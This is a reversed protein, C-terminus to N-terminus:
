FQGIGCEHDPKAADRGRRPLPWPHEEDRRQKVGKVHMDLSLSAHYAIDFHEPLAQQVGDSPADLSEAARLHIEVELDPAVSGNSVSSMQEGVKPVAIPLHSQLIPLCIV